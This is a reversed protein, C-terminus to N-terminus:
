LNWSNIASYSWKGIFLRIMQHLLMVLELTRCIALELVRMALKKIGNVRVDKINERAM